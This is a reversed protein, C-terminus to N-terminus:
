AGTIFWMYWMSMPISAIGYCLVVSLCVRFTRRTRIYRLINFFDPGRRRLTNSGVRKIYKNQKVLSRSIKYYVVAM